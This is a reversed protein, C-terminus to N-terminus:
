GAQFEGECGSWFEGASDSFRVFPWAASLQRVGVGSLFTVIAAATDDLDNTNGSAMQLGRMWCQLFFSRDDVALLVNAHRDGTRVEAGIRIWGPSAMHLAQLPVGSAEFTNQLAAHLDGVAAIDPYYL